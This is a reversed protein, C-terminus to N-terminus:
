AELDLLLEKWERGPGYNGLEGSKRIVRHCPIIIPLRNKAMVSAAARIATRKGAKRALMEYSWRKSSPIERCALLVQRSFGSLATIDVPLSSFDTKKGSLYDRLKRCCKKLVPPVPRDSLVRFVKKRVRLKKPFALSFLGNESAHITFCGYPTHLSVKEM